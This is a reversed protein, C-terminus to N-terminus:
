VRRTSTSTTACAAPVDPLYQRKVLSRLAHRGPDRAGQTGPRGAHLAKTHIRDRSSPRRSHHSPRYLRVHLAGTHTEPMMVDTLLLHIPGEHQQCIQIADMGGSAELVAYGHMQLIIRVLGRVPAKDDVLLITEPM